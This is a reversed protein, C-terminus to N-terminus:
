LGGTTLDIEDTKENVSTFKGEPNQIVAFSFDDAFRGQAVRVRIVTPSYVSLAVIGHDTTMTIGHADQRVSTVNGISDNLGAKASFASFSAILLCARLHTYQM